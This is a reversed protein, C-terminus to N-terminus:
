CAQLATQPAQVANSNNQRPSRLKLDPLLIRPLLYEFACTAHPAQTCLKSGPMTPLSRARSQRQSQSRVELPTRHFRDVPNVEVGLDLLWAVVSFCGEAAALHRCNFLACSMLYVHSTIFKISHRSSPLHDCVCVVPNAAAEIVLVDVASLTIPLVTEAVLCSTCAAPSFILIQLSSM